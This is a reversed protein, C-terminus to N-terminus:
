RRMQAEMQPQGAIAGTIMLLERSLLNIVDDATVIGFLAGGETVVPIRRIKHQRMLRLTEALGESDRVTVVPTSMIDGATITKVDLEPAVAEVIIDRDTVIGIPVRRDEKDTVIVSGVHHQRMLAAVEQVVLDPDCWIVDPNCCENVLM